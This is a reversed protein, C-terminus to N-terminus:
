RGAKATLFSLVVGGATTASAALKRDGTNAVIAIDDLGNEVLWRRVNEARELALASREQEEPKDNRVAYGFIHIARVLGAHLTHVDIVFQKLREIMAPTIASSGAAFGELRLAQQMSLGSTDVTTRRPKRPRGTEADHSGKSEAALTILVAANKMPKRLDLPQSTEAYGEAWGTVRYNRGGILDFEFAGAVNVVSSAVEEGTAVNVIRVLGSTVGAGHLRGTVHVVPYPRMTDQLVVRFIDSKGYTTEDGQGVASVYAYKGDPSLTLSSEFDNSNVSPGLNVPESWKQWSDDLRRTVYLDGAGYGYLGASAFYMTVNDPAMYPALEIAITNLTPGMSVPPGWNMLDDGLAPCSFLDLNEPNLSDRSMALLLRRGGPTISASYGEGYKYLDDLGQITISKPVGWSGNTGKRAIALGVRRGNVEAGNHVLATNGDPSIWFLVDSGLTNLPPGINKAISWSGDPQLTSYYIDDGDDAGGTNRPDFKRDFYLTRGDASLVPQIEANGGNVTSGINERRLYSPDAKLMGPQAALPAATLTLLLALLTPFAALSLVSM